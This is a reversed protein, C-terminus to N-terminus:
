RSWRRLKERVSCCKTAWKYTVRWYGAVRRGVATWTPRRGSRSQASPWTLGVCSGSHTGGPPGSRFVECGSLRWRERICCNTCRSWRASRGACSDTTMPGCVPRRGCDARDGEARTASYSDVYGGPFLEQARGKQSGSWSTTYSHGAVQHASGHGVIQPLINAAWDPQTRRRSKNIAWSHM